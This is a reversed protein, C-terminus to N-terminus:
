IRFGTRLHRRNEMRRILLRVAAVRQPRYRVDIGFVCQGLVEPGIELIVRVLVPRCSVTEPVTQDGAVVDRTGKRGAIVLIARLNQDALTPSLARPPERRAFAGPKHTEVRRPALREM